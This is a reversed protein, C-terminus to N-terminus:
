LTVAEETLHIGFQEYVEDKIKKALEQVEIATAKGINVLYNPHQLSAQADGVKLGKMGVKEILWGAPVRGERAPTGKEKEFLEQIEKPAVPNLFFSGAARVNQLHRKEREAITEEIKAHSQVPDVTQLHVKVSLIIWEPHQKFFSHRYSFTCDQNSFDRISLTTSNLARISTVVKKIEVGFAGANGRAAGGVTGPIGALEEWGGMGLEGASRIVSLLVCGADVTLNQGDIDVNKSALRIVIGEFGQDRVLTNSGGALLAFPIKQEESWQLAMRLDNENEVETFYRAKGGIQFTTLEALPVREQIHM